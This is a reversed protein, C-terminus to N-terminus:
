SRVVKIQGFHAESSLDAKAGGLSFFLGVRRPDHDSGLPFRFELFSTPVINKKRGEQGEEMFLLLKGGRGATREKRDHAAEGGGGWNLWVVACSVLHNCMTSPMM